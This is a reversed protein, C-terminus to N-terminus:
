RLRQCRPCITTGRQGVVMRKLTTGCRKCTAGSPAGYVHLSSRNSGSDGLASRYDRLTTGANEIALSLTNVIAAHLNAAKRRSISSAAKAPHIKALYLSEDAYINGVGALFSQDLLLPKIQRNTRQLRDYFTEITFEPSLPEPGYARSVQDWEPMTLLRMRGFKRADFFELLDGNDLQFAVRLHREPEPPGDEGALSYLLKGSMRLHTTLILGSSLGMVILKARRSIREVSVGTVGSIFDEPQLPEITRPWTVLASDLRRGILPGSLTRCVTEVEPLEPM